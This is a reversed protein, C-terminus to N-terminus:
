SRPLFFECGSSFTNAVNIKLRTLIISSKSFLSWLFRSGSLFCDCTLL